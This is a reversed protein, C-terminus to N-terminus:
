GWGFFRAIGAGAVVVVVIIRFLRSQNSIVPWSLALLWGFLGAIAILFIGAWRWPLALGLLLLVGVLVPLLWRPLRHLFLLPATSRSELTRRSSSAPATPTRSPQTSLPRGPATQRRHRKSKKKAM